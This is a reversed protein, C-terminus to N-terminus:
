HGDVPAHAAVASSEPLSRTAFVLTSLMHYIVDQM